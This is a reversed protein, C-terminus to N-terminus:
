KESKPEDIFAIRANLKDRWAAGIARNFLRMYKAGAPEKAFREIRDIVVVPICPVHETDWETEAECSTQFVCYQLASLLHILCLISTHNSSAGEIYDFYIWSSEGSHVGAKQMTATPVDVVYKCLESILTCLMERWAQEVRTTSEPVTLFIWKPSLGGVITVEKLSAWLHSFSNKGLLTDSPIHTPRRIRFHEISNLFALALPESPEPKADRFIYEPDIAEDLLSSAVYMLEGMDFMTPMKPADEADM